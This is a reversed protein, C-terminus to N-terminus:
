AWDDDGEVEKFHESLWKEAEEKTDFDPSNVSERWTAEPKWGYRSEIQWPKRTLSPQSSARFFMIVGGKHNHKAFVKESM